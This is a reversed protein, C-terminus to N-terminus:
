YYVEYGGPIAALNVGPEFADMTPLPDQPMSITQRTTESRTMTDGDCTEAEQVFAATGTAVNYDFTDITECPAGAESTAGILRWADDQWRYRHTYAWKARSGGFHKVVIAGREIAVSEFPDGMMGGSESSLIPNTSTHWLTWGDADVQYIRLERATGLDGEDPTNFVVVVEDDPDDDLNGTARGLMEFGDPLPTDESATPETPESPQESAPRETCGALFLVVLLLCSFRM